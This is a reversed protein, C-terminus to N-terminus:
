RGRCRPRGSPLAPRLRGNGGSAGGRVAPPGRRFPAASPRRPEATGGGAEQGVAPGRRSLYDIHVPDTHEDVRVLADIMVRGGFSVKLENRTFSRIGTAIMMAPLEQGLPLAKVVELRQQVRLNLVRPHLLAEVVVRQEAQIVLAEQKRGHM